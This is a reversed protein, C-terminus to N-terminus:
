SRRSGRRREPHDEEPTPGAQRAAVVAAALQRGAREQLSGRLLCGGVGHGWAAPLGQQPTLRWPLLRLFLLLMPELVDMTAAAAQHRRPPCSGRLVARPVAQAMSRRMCGPLHHCSLQTRRVPRLCVSACTQPAPPFRRGLLVPLCRCPAAAPVSPPHLQWCSWLHPELRRSPRHLALARAAEVPIAAPHIHCARHIQQLNRRPQPPGASNPPPHTWRCVSLLTAARPTLVKTHRALKSRLLAPQSLLM